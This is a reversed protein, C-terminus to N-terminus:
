VEWWSGPAALEVPGDYVAGASAVARQPDGWPPVHTVVLRRVGAAAAHEGAQRGTLHIGPPNDDGDDYAAECLLLDARDALEVLADSPATDGSYVLTRGAHSVRIAYAPVPHPVAVARVDFPGIRFIGSPFARFDFEGSLGPQPEKGYAAAMREGAGDPGYVPIRRPSSVGYRLAVYLGCLDMCHDPHLHSLVVAELEALGTLGVHRQLPSLAGNGLDVVLRAGDAEVLYASAPSEPGPVSGSCGLVTLRM